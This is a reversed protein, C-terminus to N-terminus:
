SFSGVTSEVVGSSLLLLRVFALLLGDAGEVADDDDLLEIWELFLVESDVGILGLFTSSRM